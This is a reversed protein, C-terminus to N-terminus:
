LALNHEKGWSGVREAACRSSGVEAEAPNASSDHVM